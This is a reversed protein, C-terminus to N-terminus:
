RPSSPTGHSDALTPPPTGPEMLAHEGEHLHGLGARGEEAQPLGVPYENGHECVGSHASDHGTVGGQSVNDDSLRPREYTKGARPDNFLGDLLGQGLSELRCLEEQLM